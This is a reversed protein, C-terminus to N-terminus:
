NRLFEYNNTLSEFSVNFNVSNHPILLYKWEKGNNAIAYESAYKCYEKAAKAKEIVEEDDLDGEKKIEIM